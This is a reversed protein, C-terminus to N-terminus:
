QIKATELAREISQRTAGDMGAWLVEMADPDGELNPAGTDGDLHEVLDVGCDSCKTFEFRYEAKCIPCFM